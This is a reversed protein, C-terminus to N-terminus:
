GRAVRLLLFEAAEPDMSECSRIAPTCRPIVRILSGVVRNARSTIDRLCQPPFRRCQHKPLFSPCVITSVASDVINQGEM